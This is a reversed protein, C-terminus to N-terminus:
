QQEEIKVTWWVIEPNPRVLITYTGAGVKFDYTFTGSHEDGEYAGPGSPSVNQLRWDADNPGWSWVAIPFNLPGDATISIRKPKDGFVIAPSQWDGGAESHHLLTTYSPQILKFAGPDVVRPQLKSFDVSDSPPVDPLGPPQDSPPPTGNGSQAAGADSASGASAQEAVEIVEDAAEAPGQAIIIDIATGPKVRSGPSPKQSIVTGSPAVSEEVVAFSITGPALEADKVEQTVRELTMGVVDPVTIDDSTTGEDDGGALLAVAIGAILLLAAIVALLIWRRPLGGGAAGTGAGGRTPPVGATGAQTKREETPELLQTTGRDEM